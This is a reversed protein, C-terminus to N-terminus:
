TRARVKSIKIIESNLDQKIAIDKISPLHEKTCNFDEIDYKGMLSFPVFKNYYTNYYYRENNQFDSTTIGLIQDDDLHIGNVWMEVLRKRLSEKIIDKM